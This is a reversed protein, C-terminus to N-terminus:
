FRYLYGIAGFIGGSLKSVMVNDPRASLTQNTIDGATTVRDVYGFIGGIDFTFMHKHGYSFGGGTLLRPKITSAITVGPGISFHAGAPSTDSFKTGLRLLATIGVEMKTWNEPKVQYEASDVAVVSYPEDHLNSGYFSVGVAAYSKSQLPFVLEQKYTNLGLEPKRPEILLSVTAQDKKFQFPLSMYQGNANNATSILGALLDRAKDAAVASQADSCGTILKTYTEVIAKDAATLEENKAIEDKYKTQFAVYTTQSATILGALTTIRNRLDTIDKLRAAYPSVTEKSPSNQQQNLQYEYVKFFVEDIAAKISTLSALFGNLTQKYEQMKPGVPSPKKETITKTKKNPSFGHASTDGAVPIKRTITYFTTPPKIGSIAKTIGELDLGTLAPMQLAKSTTTDKTNISVKYLNLNISDIIVQYFEDTKIKSLKPKTLSKSSFNYKIKNTEVTESKSNEQAFASCQVLLLLSFFIYTKKM